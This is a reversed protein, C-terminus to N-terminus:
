VEFGAFLLQQFDTAGEIHVGGLYMYPRIGGNRQMKITGNDLVKDIVLSIEDIHGSLLVKMKSDPNLVNVVNLSHHTLVKDSYPKMTDIIKKQIDIEYGSPSPTKLLDFLFKKDM